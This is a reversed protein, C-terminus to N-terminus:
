LSLYFIGTTDIDSWSLSLHLLMSLVTWEIYDVRVQKFNLCIQQANARKNISKAVLISCFLEMIITMFYVLLILIVKDSRFLSAYISCCPCYLDMRYVRGLKCSVSACKNNTQKIAQKSIQSSFLKLIVEVIVTRYCVVGEMKYTQRM